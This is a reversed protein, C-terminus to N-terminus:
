SFFPLWHTEKSLGGKFILRGRQHAMVLVSLNGAFVCVKVWEIWKANFGCRQLMYELFRWDVSDYAKEFDVKFIICEKKTKKVWDVVENVILAGDVLNRGKVFTSQNPSIISDM